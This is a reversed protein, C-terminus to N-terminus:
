SSGIHQHVDELRAFSVRVSSITNESASLQLDTTGAQQQPAVVSM